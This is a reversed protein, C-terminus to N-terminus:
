VEYISEGYESTKVSFFELDETKTYEFEMLRNKNEELFHVIYRPKIHCRVIVRDYMEEVKFSKAWTLKQVIDSVKMTVPFVAFVVIRDNILQQIVYKDTM